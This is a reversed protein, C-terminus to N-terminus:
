RPRTLRRHALCRRGSRASIRWCSSGVGGPSTVSHSSACPASTSVNRISMSSRSTSGLSTRGSRTARSRTRPTRRSSATRAARPAASALLGHLGVHRHEPEAEAALHERAHEAALHGALSTGLDAPQRDAAGVGLEDRLARPELPVEVREGDRRARRQDGLGVDARLREDGPAAEPQLEVGLHRGLDHVVPHAHVPVLEVLLADVRVRQELLRCRRGLLVPPPAAAARASGRRPRAARTRRPSGAIIRVSPVATNGRKRSRAYGLM